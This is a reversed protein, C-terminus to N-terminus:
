RYVPRGVENRALDELLCNANPVPPRPTYFPPRNEGLRRARLMEDYILHFDLKSILHLSGHFALHWDEPVWRRTYDMRPAIHYAYIYQSEQLVVDPKIAVRFPFDSGGESKWIPTHDEVFPATVTSAATFCRWHSVYLLVRDGPEMRQVKKRHQGWLGIMDFGRQRAIKFNDPSLVVMWYSKPM